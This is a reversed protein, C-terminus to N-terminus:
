TILVHLGDHIIRGGTARPRLSGGVERDKAIQNNGRNGRECPVRGSMKQAPWDDRASRLDADDEWHPKLQSRREGRIELSISNIALYIAM